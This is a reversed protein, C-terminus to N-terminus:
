GAHSSASGLGPGAPPRGLATAVAAWAEEHTCEGVDNRGDPLAAVAVPATDGVGARLDRLARRLQVARGGADCKIDVVVSRRLKGPRAQPNGILGM